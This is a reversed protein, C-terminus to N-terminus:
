LDSQMAKDVASITSEITEYTEIMLNTLYTIQYSNNQYSVFLLPTGSNSTFTLSIECNQYEKLTKLMTATHNSSM